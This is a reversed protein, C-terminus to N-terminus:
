EIITLLLYERYSIVGNISIRNEKQFKRVAWDTDSGYNGDIKGNYYGLGKLRGQVLQVLNGKSGVSLNKLEGEGTGTISGEIHVKTGLPIREFLEEVDENRM